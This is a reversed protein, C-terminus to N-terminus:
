GKEQSKRIATGIREGLIASLIVLIIAVIVAATTGYNNFVKFVTNTALHTFVILGVFFGLLILSSKLINM